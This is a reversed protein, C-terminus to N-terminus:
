GRTVDVGYIRALQLEATKPVLGAVRLKSRQWIDLPSPRRHFLKANARSAAQVMSARPRRLAEYRHLAKATSSKTLQDSLVWADEIAQAAGQAMFPLMPHAADGLLTVRGKSWRALPPLDYLAWLFTRPVVDLLRTVREDWGEFAARLEELNGEEMWSDNTWSGREQVAIFNVEAGGRIYYAVLHQYPGAWVTAARPILGEPLQDAPVTGRWAVQGTFQPSPGNFVADRVVSRLGDAGILCDAEITRKDTKVEIQDEDEAVTAVTEGLHVDAGADRAADLLIRQLDARHIHVYPAKFRSQSLDKFPLDFYPKGNQFHRIASREPEFGKALIAGELGLDRVVHMANPSLQLGAGVEQLSPAREVVEVKIGRKAVALATTLGGIGAGCILVKQTADFSRM